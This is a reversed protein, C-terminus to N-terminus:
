PSRRSHHPSPPSPILRRRRQSRHSTPAGAATVPSTARRGPAGAVECVFGHVCRGDALEVSGLGLPAPVLALFSGVAAAADGLGRGRDGRRGAGVRLWAPSPRRRAPCPTSATTRRPARPRACARRRARHAARNLPLGSLHAGVVALPLTPASAPWAAAALASADRLPLRRAPPASACRAPQAQWDRGFRALAADSGRPRSSPSASPCRRPPSARRCRWRAGASCTSSTPTCRRAARQRRAPRRRGRRHASPGAGDAGDAPRGHQWLPAADSARERAPPVPRPVRRGGLLRAGGRDGPAGDPDFAAPRASSCRSRGRCPARRGLARRLAARRGRAAARLRDARPRPRASRAAGRAAEFAARMAPTAMSNPAAVPRRRAAVGAPARPGARFDSYADLPDDGEIVRSCRAGRRRRDARLGLRLRPQPLGARRRPTSVRGPTPKLGVINNFGAPVRGSGATDTGLAFPVDGRAVVVASGSSSGGSIREARSRAARGATPRAAHRGPRHRVPRPQDQGHVGCRRRGAAAGCAAHQTPAYAFAPCAATTALGAVDINDKVAFPVGFLPLAQM